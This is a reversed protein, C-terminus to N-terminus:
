RSSRASMAGYRARSGSRTATRAWINGPWRTSIRTPAKRACVRRGPGRIQVYRYANDPDLIALAVAASPQLNRAKVRGKATNIRIMGDAYDVWVPIM